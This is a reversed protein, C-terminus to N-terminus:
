IQRYIEQVAKRHHLNRNVLKRKKILEEMADSPSLDRSRILWCLAITASRGRGAKCHVYVKNGREKQRQIYELGNEIQEATPSCYDLVPIRLQDIAHKKYTKVPGPYEECTNIVACIGLEALQPVDQPFPLAGLYLTDDVRNWWNRTKLIRGLFVTWLLTPYFLARIIIRQMKEKVMKTM